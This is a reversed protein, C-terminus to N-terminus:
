KSGLLFSCMHFIHHCYNNHELLFFHTFFQAYIRKTKFGGQNWPILGNQVILFPLSKWLSLWVEMWKPFVISSINEVSMWKSGRVRQKPASLNCVVIKTLSSHVFPIIRTVYIRVLLARCVNQFNVHSFGNIRRHRDGTLENNAQYGHPKSFTTGFIM